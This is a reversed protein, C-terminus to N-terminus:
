VLNPQKQLCSTWCLRIRRNFTFFIGLKPTLFFWGRKLPLFDPKQGVYTAEVSTRRGIQATTTSGTSWAMDAQLKSFRWVQNSPTQNILPIFQRVHTHCHTYTFTDLGFYDFIIIPYPLRSKRLLRIWGCSWLLFHQLVKDVHLLPDKGNGEWILPVLPCNDDTRSTEM